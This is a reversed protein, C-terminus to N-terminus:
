VDGDDRQGACAVSEGCILRPPGIFCPESVEGAVQAAIFALAAGSCAELNLDIYTLRPTSWEVLKANGIAVISVEDPVSRGTRRVGNIIGMSIMHTSAILGTIDPHENLLTAVLLDPEDHPGPQSVSHRVGAAELTAIMAALRQRRVENQVRGIAIGVHRHGHAILEAAAMQGVVANDVCFAPADIGRPSLTTVVVGGQTMQKVTAAFEDHHTVQDFGGGALILGAVRHEWLQRCYKLELVPDRQMNCVMALMMHTAEARRTVTEAIEGYYPDLMNGAVLGILAPTGARLTRAAMNPVYGLRAAAVRVREKLAADVPWGGDRMVRGATSVSVSAERAIDVLTPAGKRKMWGRQGTRGGPPNSEPGM